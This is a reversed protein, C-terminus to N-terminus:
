PQDQFLCLLHGVCYGWLGQFSDRYLSIREAGTEWQKKDSSFPLLVPYKLNEQQALISLDYSWEKVLTPAQRLMCLVTQVQRAIALTGKRAPSDM